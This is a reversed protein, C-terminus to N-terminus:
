QRIIAAYALNFGSSSNGMEAPLIEIVSQNTMEDIFELALVAVSIEL